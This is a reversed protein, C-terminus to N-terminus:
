YSPGRSKPRSTNINDTIESTETLTFGLRRELYDLIRKKPPFETCRVRKRMVYSEGNEFMEIDVYPKAEKPSAPLLGRAIFEHKLKQENYPPIGASGGRKNRYLDYSQKLRSYSVLDPWEERTTVYGDDTKIYAEYAKVDNERLSDFPHDMAVLDMLWDDMGKQSFQQLRRRAETDLPSRIFDRSYELDILYRHLKALNEEDDAWEHISRWFARKDSESVGNTKHAYLDSTDFVSYRRDAMGDVIALANDRENSTFLYRTHDDIEYANVGKPEIRRTPDTIMSKLKNADARRQSNMAEDCQIFLMGSSDMNFQGTIADISNVQMSHNSGIIKRMIKAGLISKGSGPLGVLVLATGIKDAPHKLIDALWYLVWDLINPNKQAIIKNVYDLFPAVDEATVPGDYPAISFGRWQNVYKEEDKEVIDGEGPVFALGEVRLARASAVMLRSMPVKAGNIDITQHMSSNHFDTFTMMAVAGRHGARHRDIINSTNNRIAFREMFDDLERLAPSDILLTYLLAVINEDGVMEALATAGKVKHGEDAKEWTKEFTKVRAPLDEDADGALQCIGRLLLLADEKEFIFSAKDGLDAMHSVARHMFGSLGLTLNNRQGETWYPMLTAAVCSFRIARMLKQIDVTVPTSRAQKLDSWEYLEGSPHMSGPLLSYRGSRLDGGRVEMKIHENEERSLAQLFRYDGPDFMDAGFGSIEYLRHSRPRSARGWVHATHPLFHDLAAILDPNPTDVDIDVVRGFVHVGINDDSRELRHITKQSEEFSNNRPDWSFHGPDKQGYPTRVAYASSSKLLDISVERNISATAKLDVGETRETM